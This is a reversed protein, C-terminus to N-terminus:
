KDTGDTLMHVDKDRLLVTPLSYRQRQDLICCKLSELVVSSATTPGKTEELTNHAPSWFLSNYFGDTDQRGGSQM